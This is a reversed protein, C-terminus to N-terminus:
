DFHLGYGSHGRKTDLSIFLEHHNVGDIKSLGDEIEYIVEKSPAEISLFLDFRGVTYFVYEIFPMKALRDAIETLRARDVSVGIAAYQVWDVKGQRVLAVIRVLDEGMMKRIRRQVTTANIGLTRAIEVTTLRGNAQLKEIIHQDVPTLIAPSEGTEDGDKMHLLLFVESAKVGPLKYLVQTLYNSMEDIDKFIAIVLLNFRGQTSTVRVVPHHERMADLIGRLDKGTVDLGIIVSIFDGVRSPNMFVTVDIVQEQILKQLRNQVAVRSLGLEEGMAACSRRGDRRLIDVIKRDVQDPM